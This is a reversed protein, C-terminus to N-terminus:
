PLSLAVSASLPLLFRWTTHFTHSKHCSDIVKPAKQRSIPHLLLPPSFRRCRNNLNRACCLTTTSPHNQEDSSGLSPRALVASLSDLDLRSCCRYQRAPPARLCATLLYTTKRDTNPTAPWLTLATAGYLGAGPQPPPPTRPLAPQPISLLQARGLLRRSPLQLVRAHSAPSSPYSPSRLYFLLHSRKLLALNHCSIKRPTSASWNLDLSLPLFSLRRPWAVM